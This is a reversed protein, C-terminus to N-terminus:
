IVTIDINSTDSLIIEDVAATLTVEGSPSPAKGILMETVEFGKISNIPTFLRSYKLSEGITINAAVWEAIANKVNTVANATYGDTPKITMDIYLQSQTPREFKIDYVQGSDSEYNVTTDGYTGVGGAKTEYIIKAIDDSEGGQVIVWISHAPVSNADTSDTDNEYVVAAQVDETQLLKALISDTTAIAPFSVSQRRRLRLESDTELNRGSIGDIPNSVSLWGAVTTQIEDLTGAPVFRAGKVNAIFLGPSATNSITMNATVSLTFPTDIDSAILVVENDTNVESFEPVASLASGIALLIEDATADSDSTITYATGNITITYATSNAVTNLTVKANTLNTASITVSESLSYVDDADSNRAESGAPIVTGINGFLNAQVVTATAEIRTVGTLAALSDLSVGEAYDPDFSLYVNEAEEWLESIPLSLVGVIQGFVSESRLDIDSGFQAKLANEIEEIIQPLRKREFGDKTLGVM